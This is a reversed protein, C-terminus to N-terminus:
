EASVVQGRFSNLITEVEEHSAADIEHADLAALVDSVAADFEENTLDLHAHATVMDIGTYQNPGGTGAAFFAAVSGVLWEQDIHLVYAAITPNAAHLDITKRVISQIGEMGGLREYLSARAVAEGGLAASAWLSVTLGLAATLRTKM